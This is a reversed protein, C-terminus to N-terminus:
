SPEARDHARSTTLPQRPRGELAAALDDAGIRGGSVVIALRDGPILDNFREIAAIGAAAAGEIPLGFADYGLGIAQWLDDDDVVVMRGLMADLFTLSAEGPRGTALGGAFTTCPLTLMRGELWSRTVAPAASSQVGVIAARDGALDVALLSAAALNGGGVPVVVSDLEPVAALLEGVVTAAGAMLWPDDGDELYRGGTAKAHAQAVREAEALSGGGDLLRAGLDEMARLKVPDTQNPVAVVAHMGFVRAAFAVGQGHNGTSATVVGRDREGSEFSALAALAGRVKFSRIPSCNELKVYVDRGYRRSLAENRETPTPALERAVVTAARRLDDPSPVGGAAPRRQSVAREYVGATVATPTM